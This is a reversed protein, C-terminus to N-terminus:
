LCYFNNDRDDIDQKPTEPLEAWHTINHKNEKESEWFRFIGDSHTCITVGEDNLHGYTLVTDYQEPLRDEIKIWDMVVPITLLDLKAQHYDEAFEYIMHFDIEDGDWFNASTIAEKDRYEKATM